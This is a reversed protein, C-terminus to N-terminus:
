SLAPAASGATEMETALTFASPVIVGKSVSPALPEPKTSLYAGNFVAYWYATVVLALVCATM